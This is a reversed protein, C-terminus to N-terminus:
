YALIYLRYSKFNFILFVPCFFINNKMVICFWVVNCHHESTADRRNEVEDGKKGQSGVQWVDRVGFSLGSVLGYM